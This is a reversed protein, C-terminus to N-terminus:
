GSVRQTLRDGARNGTLSWFVFVFCLCIGDGHFRDSESEGEADGENQAGTLLRQLRVAINFGSFLALTLQGTSRPRIDTALALGDIGQATVKAEKAPILDRCKLCREGCYCVVFVGV